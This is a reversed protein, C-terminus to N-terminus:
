ALFYVQKITIMRRGPVPSPITDGNLRKAEEAYFEIFNLAYQYFLLLIV